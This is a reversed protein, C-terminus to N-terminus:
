DVRGSRRVCRGRGDGVVRLLRSFQRDATPARPNIVDHGMAPHRRGIRELRELVGLLEPTTLGDFGLEAAAAAAAEFRDLVATVTERDGNSRMDWDDPPASVGSAGFGSRRPSIWLDSKMWLRKM